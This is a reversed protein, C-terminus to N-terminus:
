KNKEGDADAREMEALKAKLAELEDKSMKDLQYIVSSAKSDGEGAKPKINRKLEENLIKGHEVTIEGRKVLEDLMQKSKEATLAAAGIGALIIRKMDDSMNNFM